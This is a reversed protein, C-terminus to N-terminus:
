RKPASNMKFDKPFGPCSQSVGRSFEAELEASPDSELTARDEPQSLFLTGSRPRFDAGSAGIPNFFEISLPLARM